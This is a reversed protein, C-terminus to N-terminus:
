PLYWLAAKVCKSACSCRHEPPQSPFYRNEAPPVRWDDRQHALQGHYKQDSRCYFQSRYAVSDLSLPPDHWHMRRGPEQVARHASVETAEVVLRSYQETM